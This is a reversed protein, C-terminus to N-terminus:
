GSPDTILFSTEVARGTNLSPMFPFVNFRSDNYAISIDIIEGEETTGGSTVSVVAEDPNILPSLSTLVRTVAATARQQREASTLGVMASRGGEAAAYSLAVRGAFQFGFMMIGFLISLFVVLVFAFEVAVVGQEDRLLRRVPWIRACGPWARGHPAPRIM